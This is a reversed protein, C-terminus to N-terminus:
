LRPFTVGAHVGGPQEFLECQLVPVDQGVGDGPALEDEVGAADDKEPDEAAVAVGIFGYALDRGLEAQAALEGAGLVPAEEFQYILPLAAFTGDQGATVVGDQLGRGGAVAM